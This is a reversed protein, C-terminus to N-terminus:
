AKFLPMFYRKHRTILFVELAVLVLAIATSDKAFFIHFLLINVVIPGLLVLALPVFRNALLMVGGVLEIVKVVALYGSSDLLKFFVLAKFGDPKPLFELFYNVGFLAFIFGLLIRAILEAKKM